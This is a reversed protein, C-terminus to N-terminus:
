RHRWIAGPLFAVGAVIIDQGADVADAALAKCEKSVIGKEFFLIQIVNRQSNTPSAPTIGSAFIEATL